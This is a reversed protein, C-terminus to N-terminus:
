SAIAYGKNSSPQSNSSAILGTNYMLNRSNADFGENDTTWEDYVMYEMIKQWYDTTFFWLDADQPLISTILHTATNTASEVVQAEMMSFQQNLKTDDYTNEAVQSGVHVGAFFSVVATIGLAIAIIIPAIGYEPYESPDTDYIIERLEEMTYQRYTEMGDDESAYVTPAFCVTLMLAIIVVAGAKVSNTKLFENM